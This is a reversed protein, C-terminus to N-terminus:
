WPLATPADWNQVDAADVDESFGTTSEYNSFFMVIRFELLVAFPDPQIGPVYNLIYIRSQLVSLLM